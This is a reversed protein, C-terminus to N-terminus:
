YIAKFVDLPHASLLPRVVATGRSFPPKSKCSCKLNRKAGTNHPADSVPIEVANIRSASSSRAINHSTDDKVLMRFVDSEIITKWLM